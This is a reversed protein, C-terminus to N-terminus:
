YYDLKGTAFEQSEFNKRGEPALGDIPSFWSFFCFRKKEELNDM